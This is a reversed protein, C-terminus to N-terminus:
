KELKKRADDVIRRVTTRDRQIRTGIERYNFGAEHALLVKCERADLGAKTWKAVQEAVADDATTLAALGELSLTNDALAIGLAATTDTWGRQDDPRPKLEHDEPARNIPQYVASPLAGQRLPDSSRPRDLSEIQRNHVNSGPLTPDTRGSEDVALASVGATALRSLPDAAFNPDSVAVIRETGNEVTKYSWLHLPRGPDYGRRVPDEAIHAGLGAAFIATGPKVPSVGSDQRNLKNAMRQAMEREDRNSYRLVQSRLTEGVERGDVKTHDAASWAGGRMDIVVLDHRVHNPGMVMAAAVFAIPPVEDPCGICVLTGESDILSWVRDLSVVDTFESDDGRGRTYTVAVKVASGLELPSTSRSTEHFDFLRVGFAPEGQALAKSLMTEIFTAPSVPEATRLETM